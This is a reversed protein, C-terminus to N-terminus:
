SQGSVIQSLPEIDAAAAVRREASAPAAPQEDVPAPGENETKHILSRAALVRPM